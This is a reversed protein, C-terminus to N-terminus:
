EIRWDEKRITWDGRCGCNCGDILGRRKMSTLKALLVKEPFKAIISSARPISQTCGGIRCEVNWHTWNGGSSLVRIIEDEPVHKAQVDKKM